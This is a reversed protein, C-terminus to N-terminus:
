RGVEIEAKMQALHHIPIEAAALPEIEGHDTRRHVFDATDGAHAPQDILRDEDRGSEERRDTRLLAPQNRDTAVRQAADSLRLIKERQVPHSLAWKITRNISRKKFFVSQVALPAALDRALQSAIGESLMKPGFLKRIVAMGDTLVRLDSAQYNTMQDGQAGRDSARRRARRLAM